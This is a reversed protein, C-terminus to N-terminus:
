VSLLREAPVLTVSLCGVEAVVSPVSCGIRPGSVLIAVGTRVALCARKAPTRHDVKLEVKPNAHPVQSGSLSTDAAGSAVAGELNIVVGPKLAVVEM